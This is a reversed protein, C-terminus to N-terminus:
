TRRLHRSDTVCHELLSRADLWTGTAPRKKERETGDWRKSGGSVGVAAKDEVKGKCEVKGKSGVSRRLARYRIPSICGPESSPPAWAPSVGVTRTSM